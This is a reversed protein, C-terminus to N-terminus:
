SKSPFYSVKVLSAVVGLVATLTGGVAGWRRAEKRVEERFPTMSNEMGTMRVEVATLRTGVATIRDGLDEKMADQRDRLDSVSDHLQKINDLLLTEFPSQPM